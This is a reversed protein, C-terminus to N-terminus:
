SRKFFSLGISVFFCTFAIGWLIRRGITSFDGVLIGIVALGTGAYLLGRGVRYLTANM